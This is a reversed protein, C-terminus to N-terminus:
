NAGPAKEMHDITMVEVSTKKWELKLGLQSQLASFLNPRDGAPEGERPTPSFELTFDYKATLGTADTVTLPAADPGSERMLMFRLVAVVENMPAQQGITRVLSPTMETVKVGDTEPAQIAASEKMKSGSKAVTLAYGTVEKTDTHYKLKFRDALLNRLMEGFQEKTTDVPMTADVQVFQTGLWGPGVIDFYSDYARGLLSRLSIVPYHIRGPDDTGPGGTNRPMSIGSGKPARILLGGGPGIMEAPVSVAKVSAVDFVPSGNQELDMQVSAAFLAFLAAILPM